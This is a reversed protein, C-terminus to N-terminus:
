TPSQSATRKRRADRFMVAVPFAIIALTFALLIEFAARPERLHARFYVILGAFAILGSLVSIWVAFRIRKIIPISLLNGRVCSRISV